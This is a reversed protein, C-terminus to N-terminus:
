SNALEEVYRKILLMRTAAPLLTLAHDLLEILEKRELEMELDYDDTVM